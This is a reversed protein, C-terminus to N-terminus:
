NVALRDASRSSTVSLLARVLLALATLGGVIPGSPPALRL